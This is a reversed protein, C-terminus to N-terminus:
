KTSISFLISMQIHIKYMYMVFAARAAFKVYTNFDYMFINIILM